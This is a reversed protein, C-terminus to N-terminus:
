RVIPMKFKEITFKAKEVKRNKLAKYAYILDAENFVVMKTGFDDGILVAATMKLAKKTKLIYKLSLTIKDKSASQESFKVLKYTNKNTNKM